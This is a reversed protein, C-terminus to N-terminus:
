AELTYEGQATERQHERALRLRWYGHEGNSIVARLTLITEASNLSCRAGTIDPCDGILHRCAGETVGTAFTFGATLVQDYCLFKHKSALYRVCADAGHRQSSTLGAAHERATIDATVM